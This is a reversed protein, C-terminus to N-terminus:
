LICSYPTRTSPRPTKRRSSRARPTTSAPAPAPPAPSLCQPQSRPQDQHRVSWHPTAISSAGAGARSSRWPVKALEISHTAWDEGETREASVTNDQAGDCCCASNQRCRTALSFLGDGSWLGRGLVPPRNPWLSIDGVDPIDGRVLPLAWWDSLAGRWGHALESVRLSTRDGRLLNEKTCGCSCELVYQLGLRVGAPHGCDMSLQAHELAAPRPLMRRVARLTATAQSTQEWAPRCVM